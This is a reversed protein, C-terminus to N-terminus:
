VISVPIPVQQQCIFLFLWLQYSFSMSSSLTPEVIEIFSFFLFFMDIALGFSRRVISQLTTFFQVNYYSLLAWFAIWIINYFCGHWTHRFSHFLDTLRQMEKRIAEKTTPKTVLTMQSTM